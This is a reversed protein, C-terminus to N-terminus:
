RARARGGHRGSSSTQCCTHYAALWEASPGVARLRSCKPHVPGTWQQEMWGGHVRWAHSMSPERNARPMATLRVKLVTPEAASEDKSELDARRSLADAAANDKGKVYGMEFTLDCLEEMWRGLRRNLQEKTNLYVLPQHDSRLLVPHPSGHLYQRWHKTAEVIAMLERETASYNRQASNLKHSWYAVPRAKGDDQVQSLVAGIAFGSADTQVTWQRQPDPHALVPASTLAQKLTDFAHQEDAGWSFWGREVVKTLDTLPRAVAAFDRVFRRYFGALGLFARVDKVSQPVPWSRVADVKHQQVSLGDRSVMHGLFSVESRMFQCKAPNTYYGEAELRGLVWDVLEVHEDETRSFIIIDDIFM